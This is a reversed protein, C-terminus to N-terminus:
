TLLFLLPFNTTFTFDFRETFFWLTGSHCIQVHKALYSKRTTAGCIDCNVVLSSDLFCGFACFHRYRKLSFNVVQCQWFFLFLLYAWHLFIYIESEPNRHKALHGLYRYKLGNVYPCHKCKYIKDVLFSYVICHFDIIPSALWNTSPITLTQGCIEDVNLIKFLM